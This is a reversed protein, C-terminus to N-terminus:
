DDWRRWGRAPGTVSTGPAPVDPSAAPVGRGRTPEPPCGLVGSLAAVRPRAARSGRVRVSRRGPEATTQPPPEEPAPADTPVVDVQVYADDVGSCPCFEIRYRIEARLRELAAERTPGASWCNPLEVASAVWSGTPDMNLRARYRAVRGGNRGPSAIPLPCLNGYPATRSCHGPPSRVTQFRRACGSCSQRTRPGFSGLSPSVRRARGSVFGAPSARERWGM